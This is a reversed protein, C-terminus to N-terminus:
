CIKPIKGWHGGFNQSGGNGIYGRDELFICGWGWGRIIPVKPSKMPFDGFHKDVVTKKGDFQNLHLYKLLALNQFLVQFMASLAAKKHTVQGVLGISTSAVEEWSTTRLREPLNSLDLDSIDGNQSCPTFRSDYLIHM